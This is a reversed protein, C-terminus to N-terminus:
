RAGAEVVPTPPGENGAGDLATVRYRFLLGPTLGSDTYKLDAIPEATLKRFGETGPEQRYVLYGVADRDPSARWVLSIIGGPQPLAVLDDPPAPAFRDEYGVEQEEGFGSEVRPETAGLSTVTFIYRDGYRATTDVYTRADAPLTALADGYSRSEAPRRYVAFGAVGTAEARWSLAIGNARPEIALGTPPPPPAQPVLRALNSWASAEGDKAVTRVSYVRLTRAAPTATAAAPPVEPLPLRVVVRGGEIASQLEAGRLTAVPKGGVTLERADVIPLETVGAPVERTLSVVEVADLGPLKAGGVTTQPYAFRLVLQNGRQAVTLDKTPNPIVRLPPQPNGKKGCAGAVGVLALVFALRLGANCLIQKRGTM